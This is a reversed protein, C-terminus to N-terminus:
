VTFRYGLGVAGKIGRYGLDGTYPFVPIPLFRVQWLAQLVKLLHALAAPREAWLSGGHDL